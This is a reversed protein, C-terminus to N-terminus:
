ALANPQWCWHWPEYVYGAANGRPYSLTFGFAGAHACLWGYAPTDAFGDDLAPHMRSAIDVARGTHHESYGPPALSQLIVEIAVGKDLKRQILEVQRAVSRFASQVMLEHGDKAAAAQMARWAAAAAPILMYERGDEGFAVWELANIDAEEHAQLGRAAIVDADIGLTLLINAYPSILDTAM